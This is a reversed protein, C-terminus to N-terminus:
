IGLQPNDCFDMCMQEYEFTTFNGEDDYHGFKGEENPYIGIRELREPHKKNYEQYYDSTHRDGKANWYTDKCQTCCFAQQWQKKTFSTGCIPCVITEGVKAAKNSEYQLQRKSKKRM